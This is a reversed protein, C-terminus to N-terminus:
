VGKIEDDAILTWLPEKLASMLTEKSIWFWSVLCIRSKHHDTAYIATLLPFL